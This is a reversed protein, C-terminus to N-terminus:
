DDRGAVWGRQHPGTQRGGPSRFDVDLKAKLTAKVDIETLVGFGQEKLAAVMREKVQDIPGPVITDIGYKAM